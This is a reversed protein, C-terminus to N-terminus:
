ANLGLLDLKQEKFYLLNKTESRYDREWWLVRLETQLMSKQPGINGLHAAISTKGDDEIEDRMSILM